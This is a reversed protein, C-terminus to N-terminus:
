IEFEIKLDQIFICNKCSPCTAYEKPFTAHCNSCLITSELDLLGLDQAEQLLEMSTTQKQHEM